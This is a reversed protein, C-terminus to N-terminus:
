GMSAGCNTCFRVGAANRTGCRGCSRGAVGTLSNGCSSYFRQIAYNPQHCNPCNVWKDSGGTDSAKRPILLRASLPAGCVVCFRLQLPNESGCQECTQDFLIDRPVLQLVHNPDGYNPAREQLLQWMQRFAPWDQRKALTRANNYLWAADRNQENHQLATEADFDNPTRELLAQWAGIAEGWSGAQEAGKARQRLRDLQIPLLQRQTEELQQAAIGNGFQADREVVQRLMAEAQDLNGHARASIGQMFLDNLDAAPAPVPLAVLQAAPDNIHEQATPVIPQPASVGISWPRSVAAQEGLRLLQLRLQQLGQSEDAQMDIYQFEVLLLPIREVHRLVVPIIPKGLQQSFLLEKTVWSSAVADPSLGVVVIDSAQIAREIQTAWKDGGELHERDVWTRFGYSILEAELRDITASDTRSYSIFVNTPRGISAAM